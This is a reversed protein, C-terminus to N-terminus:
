DPAQQGCRSYLAFHAEACNRWTYSQVHDLGRRIMDARVKVDALAVECAQAICEPSNPDDVLMAAGGAVEPLATCNSTVVPVGCAMAELVPIGFGEYLSPFVFLEAGRYLRVLRADSVPGTLEVAQELGLSSVLARLERTDRGPSGALVLRHPLDLRQRLLGFARVLRPLNKRPECPGVHLLYPPSQAGKRDADESGPLPEGGQFRSLDVGNPIVTIQGPPLEYHRVLEDKSWQSVTVVQALAAAGSRLGSRIRDGREPDWLETAYASAGHVTVIKAARGRAWGPPLYHYPYHIVDARSLSQGWPRLFRRNLRTAFNSPRRAPDFTALWRGAPVERGWSLIRLDLSNGGSDAHSALGMMYRAVGNMRAHPTRDVVTARIM